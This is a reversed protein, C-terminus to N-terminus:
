MAASMASVRNEGTITQFQCCSQADNVKWLWSRSALLNENEKGRKAPLTMTRSVGVPMRETMASTTQRLCIVAPNAGGAAAVTVNPRLWNNSVHSVSKGTATNAATLKNRTLLSFQVPGTQSPRTGNM